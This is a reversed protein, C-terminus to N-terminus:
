LSCCNTWVEDPDVQLQECALQYIRPDPKRMGLKCSELVLDFHDVPFGEFQDDRSWTDDIWNNTLACTKFGTTNLLKSYVLLGSMLLVLTDEVINQFWSSKIVLKCSGSKCHCTSM